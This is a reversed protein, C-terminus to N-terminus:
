LTRTRQVSRGGNLGQQRCSCCARACFTAHTKSDEPMKESKKRCQKKKRTQLATDRCLRKRLQDESQTRLVDLWDKVRSSQARSENPLCLVAHLVPRMRHIWLSVGRRDHVKRDSEHSSACDFVSGRHVDGRLALVGVQRGRRPSRRVSSRRQVSLLLHRRPLGLCRDYLFLHVHLVANGTQPPLHIPISKKGRQEDGQEVGYNGV